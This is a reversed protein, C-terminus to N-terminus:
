GAVRNIEPGGLPGQTNAYCLAAAYEVVIRGGSVQIADEIAHLLRALRESPLVRHDSHTRLLDIYQTADYEAQWRYERSTARGFEPAAGFMREFNECTNTEIGRSALEPAHETYADQIRGHTPTTGHLPRNAFIALMGGPRLAQATRSFRIAPDIWHFSQAAFVLDFPDGRLPWEEFTAVEVHASPDTALRQRAV